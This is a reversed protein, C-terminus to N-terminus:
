STTEIPHPKFIIPPTLSNTTFKKFFFLFEYVGIMISASASLIIAFSFYKESGIFEM